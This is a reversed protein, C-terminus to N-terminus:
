DPEFREGYRRDVPATQASKDLLCRGVALSDLETGMFCDFAAQPSHVIPEGRVNFSTNVLIPCGTVREFEHLLRLFRPEGHEGVTQVRASGDVHTVAPIESRKAALVPAVLLMYPSPTKLEFWDAARSELVAPAFPRFAERLKIKANLTDKADARRPDCL